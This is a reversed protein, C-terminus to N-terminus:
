SIYKCFTNVIQFIQFTISSLIFHSEVADWMYNNILEVQKHHSFWQTVITM